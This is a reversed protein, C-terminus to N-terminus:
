LLLKVIKAFEEDSAFFAFIVEWRIFGSIRYCVRVCICYSICTQSFEMLSIPCVLSHMFLSKFFSGPNVCAGVLGRSLTHHFHFLVCTFINKISPFQMLLVPSFSQMAFILSEQCLLPIVQKTFSHIPCNELM